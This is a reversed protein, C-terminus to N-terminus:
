FLLNDFFIYLIIGNMFLVKMYVNHIYVYLPSIFTYGVKLTTKKQPLPILLYIPHPAPFNSVFTCQVSYPSPIKLCFPLASLEM